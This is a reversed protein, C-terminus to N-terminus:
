FYLRFCEYKNFRWCVLGCICIEKYCLLIRGLLLYRVIKSLGECFVDVNSYYNLNVVFMFFICCIVFSCM